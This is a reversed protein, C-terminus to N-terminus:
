LKHATLSIDKHLLFSLPINIINFAVLFESVSLQINTTGIVKLSIKMIINHHNHHHSHACHWFRCVKLYSHKHFTSKHNLTEKLEASSHSHKYITKCALSSRRCRRWDSCDQWILSSGRLISLLLCQMLVPWGCLIGGGLSGTKGAPFLTTNASTAFPEVDASIACSATWREPSVGGSVWVCCDGGHNTSSLLSALCMAAFGLLSNSHCLQWLQKRQQRKGLVGGFIYRYMEWLEAVTYHNECTSWHLDCGACCCADQVRGSTRLIFSSLDESPM